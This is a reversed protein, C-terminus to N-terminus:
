RATRPDKSYDILGLEECEPSGEVTIRQGMKFMDTSWGSRRLTHASRMECRHHTVKGSADRVDFYIWSHPNILDIRTLTGQLTVAKSGDFTGGGHHALVAPALALSVFVSAAARRM